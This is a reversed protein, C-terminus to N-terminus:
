QAAKQEEAPARGAQIKDFIWTVLLVVLVAFLTSVLRFVGYWIRATSNLTCAVLILTVCGIRANIYPVKAAKCLFLTLVVGVVIMLMEVWDNGIVCDLAIIVIAVIGGIATIILRNIGAKLSVKTNDQCCLFCSICCTMKQIIELSYNGWTFKIGAVDSLLMSATYCILVCVAMRVDLLTVTLKETEPKM